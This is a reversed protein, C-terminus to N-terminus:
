TSYEVSKIIGKCAGAAASLSSGCVNHSIDKVVTKCM